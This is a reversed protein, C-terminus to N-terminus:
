ICEGQNRSVLIAIILWFGGINTFIEFKSLNNSIQSVTLGQAACTKIKCSVGHHVQIWLEWRTYWSLRYVNRVEM